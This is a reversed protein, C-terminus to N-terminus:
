AAAAARELDEKLTRPAVWYHWAAWFNLTSFLLLAYRVAESGALPILLDSVRGVILPGLGYGIFNIVFLLLASATSRMNVGVLNQTVTFTPGLYLGGVLSTAPLLWLATRTDSLLYGALAFPAALIIAVTVM